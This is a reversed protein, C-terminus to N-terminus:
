NQGRTHTHWTPRSHKDYLVLNGDQQMVLRSYGRHATGSNWLAQNAFSYLVLNGDPQMDLRYAPKGFTRSSWLPDGSTNSYLVLNGDTQLTLRYKRDPTELQQGVHLYNRDYLSPSVFGLLSPNEVTRSNWLPSGGPSYVVMNGDTQLAFYAGPNGYTATHWMASGNRDYLVLNGDPQMILRQPRKGDTLTYWRPALTSYLVLNGDRQLVLSNNTDQSMLSQSPTIQEGPNLRHDTSQPAISNTVNIPLTLRANLWTKGEIVLQYREKYPARAAPATIDFNFTGVAGPVVTGEVLQAPRNSTFWSANMFASTDSGHRGIRTFSQDWNKWGTNRIKFQIYAKAGPALSIINKTFKRTRAADTYIYASELVADYAINTLTSGFWDNYLRWFNRNGYSSCSNGTGYLNNLAASNPQYPTYNYLGATAQSRLFLNRGGCGANPHYQIFNTFGARYNPGNVKDYYKYVRAAYFVQNFFGYYTSNCAATDPCGYGTASRYQIDWPWTDTVLSQEKQLLVLLVRTSVGCARSVDYIIQAAPQNGKAGMASCLGSEAAKSPTNQRYDKLCTYPSGSDNPSGTSAHNTDCVPVKSNLFAQIQSPTLDGGRFFVSDDMIREANFQSGSLASAQVAPFILTGVLISIIALALSTRSLIKM